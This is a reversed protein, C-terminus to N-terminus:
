KAQWKERRNIINGSTDYSIVVKKIVERYLDLQGGLSVEFPGNVEIGDPASVVLHGASLVSVTNVVLTSRGQIFISDSVTQNSYIDISDNGEQAKLSSASLMLLLLVYLRPFIHKM